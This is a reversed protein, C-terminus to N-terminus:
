TRQEHNCKENAVNQMVESLSIGDYFYDIIYRDFDDLGSVQNFLNDKGIIRFKDLTDHLTLKNYEFNVVGADHIKRSIMRPLGYEELQYVVPPLFAYSVKKIMPALDVSLHRLVAKQIVNVDQLLPSLKVAVNRELEFFKDTDINASSARDLLETITTIWNCSLIKIFDVFSGHRIGWAGAQFGIIRNLLFVWDDPNTSNLYNLGNWTNSNNKMDVAITKFLSMESSQLTNQEFIEKYSDAGIVDRLEEQSAKLKKIQEMTLCEVAVDDFSILAGDDINLDLTQETEQPPQELIYIKGVFHRFMRGGRGIINRYTFDDLNRNGKKNKWLVINEASTNVGEVISTTSVLRSLGNEEEFLKVQIQTLPRHLRANHLGTKRAILKPLTWASDYNKELWSIFKQLIDSVNAPRSDALLLTSIATIEPYTGAYVLTKRNDLKNILKLFIETKKGKDKGIKKYWNHKELFVTNLDFPIFEMGGTFPNDHIAEINPALFYRQGAVKKLHAIARLLSSSRDEDYKSDAKHFEDVILIDIEPLLTIYGLAREQPFIFINKESLPVDSTTIIKYDRAFKKYLRRRTEDTLAITPVIIVVNKPKKIAIFADIVFSKGFSTPASIVLDKGSLLAKLLRSQERHLTAIKGGGIDAEFLQKVFQDEWDANEVKIYPYLGLGRILHNVLPNYPHNNQEFADLLKILCNRAIGEDGSNLLDSIKRCEEFADIM